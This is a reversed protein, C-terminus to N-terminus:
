AMYVLLTNKTSPYAEVYRGSILLGDSQNFYISQGVTGNFGVQLISIGDSGFSNDLQGNLQYKVTTLNRISKGKLISYGAAIISSGQISLNILSGGGTGPILATAQGNNGFSEDLHGNKDIKLIIFSFSLTGFASDYGLFVDDNSDVYLGNVDFLGEKIKFFSGNGAFTIDPDGNAAYRNIFFGGPKQTEGGENTATGSIVIKDDSQIAIKTANDYEQIDSLVIGNDGFSSDIDGNSKFRVVLADEKNNANLNPIYGVAIIKGDTQLAIANCFANNLSAPNIIGEEGFESDPSGDVNYRTLLFNSGALIIKNDKQIALSNSAGQNRNDIVVGNNGFSEDYSVSQSNGSISLALMGFFLFTKM